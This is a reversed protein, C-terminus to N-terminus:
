NFSKFSPINGHECKLIDDTIGNIERYTAEIVNMGGYKEKLQQQLYNPFRSEGPLKTKDSIYQILQEKLTM